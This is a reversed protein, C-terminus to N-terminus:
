PDFSSAWLVLLWPSTRPSPRRVGGWGALPHSPLVLTGLPIRPYATYGDLFRTAAIARTKRGRTVNENNIKIHFRGLHTLSFLSFSNFLSFLLLGLGLGLGLWVGKRKKTVGGWIDSFDM